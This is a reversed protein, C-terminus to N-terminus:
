QWIWIILVQSTYGLKIGRVLSVKHKYDLVVVNCHPQDNWVATQADQPSSYCLLFLNGAASVVHMKALTHVHITM